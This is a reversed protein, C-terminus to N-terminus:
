GHPQPVGVTAPRPPPGATAVSLLLPRVRELSQELEAAVEAASTWDDLEGTHELRQAARAVATAGLSLSAGKLTHAALNLARADRETIASHIRRLLDASEENFAEILVKLLETDGEV